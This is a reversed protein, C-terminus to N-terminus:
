KMEWPAINTGKPITRAASDIDTQAARVAGELANENWLFCAEPAGKLCFIAGNGSNLVLNKSLSFIPPCPQGSAATLPMELPIPFVALECRLGNLGAKSKHGSRHQLVAKGAAPGIPTGTSFFKTPMLIEM